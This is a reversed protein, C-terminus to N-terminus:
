ACLADFTADCSTGAPCNSCGAGTEYMVGGVMNGGEAYNCVVNQTFWGDETEYYVYGCGIRDTEAWVVQSYHGWEGFVFPNIDASDFGPTTVEDYWSQAATELGVPDDETSQYMWANQGVYTGDCLNRVKDHGFECQGTWRQAITELEDDWVFKRMNAASPQNAEGGSAVKQRLQNHKELIKDKTAQDIGTQKLEYGCETKETEYVTMTHDDPYPPCNGSSGGNGSENSSGGNGGENGSGGNGSGENGSAGNGSGGENGSGGSPPPDDCVVELDGVAFCFLPGPEETKEYICDSMCNYSSTDAEKKLIYDVGGVTKTTCCPPPAGAATCIIVAYIVHSLLLTAM